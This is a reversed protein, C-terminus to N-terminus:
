RQQLSNYKVEVGKWVTGCGGDPDTDERGTEAVM